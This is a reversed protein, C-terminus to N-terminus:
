LWKEKIRTLWDCLQDDRFRIVPGSPGVLDLSPRPMWPEVEYQRLLFYDGTPTHQILWFCVADMAAFASLVTRQHIQEAKLHWKDKDTAKADFCILQGGASCGIYDPLSRMHIWRVEGNAYKVMRASTQARVITALERGAYLIHQRDLTAELASGRVQSERGM